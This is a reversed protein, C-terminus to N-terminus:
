ERAAEGIRGGVGSSCRQWWSRGDGADSSCSAMTVRYPSSVRHHTEAADAGSPVTDADPQRSGRLHQWGPQTAVGPPVRSRICAFTPPIVHDANAYHHGKAEHSSAPWSTAPPRGLTTAAQDHTVICMSHYPPSILTPPEARNRPRAVIPDIPHEAAPIRSSPVTM